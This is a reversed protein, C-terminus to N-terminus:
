ATAAAAFIAIYVVYFITISLYGVVCGYFSKKVEEKDNDTVFYVVAIGVVGFCCGWVFSPIGMPPEGNMSCAGMVGMPSAEVNAVLANGLAKLQNLTVGEHANVYNELENLDAFVTQIQNENVKILKSYNSAFSNVSLTFVVAILFLIKKKM